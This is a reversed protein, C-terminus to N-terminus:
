FLKLRYLAAANLRAYCCDVSQLVFYGLFLGVSINCFNVNLVLYLILRKLLVKLRESWLLYLSFVLYLMRIHRLILTSHVSVKM